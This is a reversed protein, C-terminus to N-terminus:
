DSAKVVRLEYRSPSGFESHILQVISSRIEEDDPYDDSVGPGQFNVFMVKNKMTTVDCGGNTHCGYFWAGNERHSQVLWESQMANSFLCIADIKSRGKMVGGQFGKSAYHAAVSRMACINILAPQHGSEFADGGDCWGSKWAGLKHLIPKGTAEDFLSNLQFPQMLMVDDPVVLFYDSLGPITHMTLWKAWERGCGHSCGSNDVGIDKDTVVRLNEISYDFFPPRGVDDIVAHDVLIIVNRVFDLLGYKEFSRLQYKIESNKEIHTQQTTDLLSIMDKAAFWTIVLDFKGGSNSGALSPWRGETHCHEVSPAVWSRMDDPRRVADRVGGHSSSHVIRRATGKQMLSRKALSHDDFSHSDCSELASSFGSFLASIAFLFRMMSVSKM